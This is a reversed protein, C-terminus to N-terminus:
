YSAKKNKWIIEPIYLSAYLTVVGNLIGVSAFIYHTAIEFHFLAITFLSSVVMFFANMINLAAMTRARHTRDIRNQLAAYLPIVYLAGAVGLIIMDIFFRDFCQIVFFPFTNCQQTISSREGLLYVEISVISILTIAISVLGLDITQRSIKECIVSGIGVGIALALTLLSVNAATADLLEKGYIPILTFYASGMFWFLSILIIITGTENRVLNTQILNWGSVLPNLTIKLDAANAAAGPIFHASFRGACAIICMAILLNLDKEQSTGIMMGGLFGGIIIAAYTGAQILGNAGTLDDAKLHQPLLSYKIPGFFTSQTGMLFLIILLAPFSQFYFGIGALLALIIEINKLTRVIRSKEYKDAIQGAIGSILFFPLIFIATTIAVLPKTDLATSEPIKFTVFVIIAFRFVNDNLAGFFQTAFLPVFRRKTLLRLQSMDKQNPSRNRLTTFM